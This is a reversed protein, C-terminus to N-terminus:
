LWGWRQWHTSLMKSARHWPTRSLDCASCTLAELLRLVVPWQGRRLAKDAVASDVSAKAALLLEVCELQDAEVALALPRSTPPGSSGNVAAGAELLFGVLPTLGNSAACALSTLESSDHAELISPVAVLLRKALGWSGAAVAEFLAHRATDETSSLNAVKARLSAEM